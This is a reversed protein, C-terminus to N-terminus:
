YYPSHITSSRADPWTMAELTMGTDDVPEWLTGPTHTIHTPITCRDDVTTLSFDM